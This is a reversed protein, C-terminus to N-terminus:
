HVKGDPYVEYTIEAFAVLDSDAVLDDTWFHNIKIDGFQELLARHKGIRLIHPNLGVRVIHKRVVLRSGLCECYIGLRQVFHEVIQQYTNTCIIVKRGNSVDRLKDLLEINIKTLLDEEVFKEISENLRRESMLFFAGTLWKENWRHKPFFVNILRSQLYINAIWFKRIVSSQKFCFKIFENSTNCNVITFCFDFVDYHEKRM